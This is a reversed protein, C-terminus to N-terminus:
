VRARWVTQHDLAGILHPGGECYVGTCTVSVVLIVDHWFCGDKVCRLGEAIAASGMDGMKTNSLNLTQLTANHRYPNV